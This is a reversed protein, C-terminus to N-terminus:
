VPIFIGWTLINIVAHLSHSVNGGVRLAVAPLLCDWRSCGAFPGNNVRAFKALVKNPYVVCESPGFNVPMLSILILVRRRLLAPM